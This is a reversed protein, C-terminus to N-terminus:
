RMLVDRVKIEIQVSESYAIMADDFEADRNPYYMGQSQFIDEYDVSM